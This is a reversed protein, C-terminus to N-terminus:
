VLGLAIDLLRADGGIEGGEEWEDRCGSVPDRDFAKVEGDRAEEDKSLFASSMRIIEPCVSIAEGSDHLSFVGTGVGRKSFNLKTKVGDVEVFGHVLAELAEGGEDLECVM